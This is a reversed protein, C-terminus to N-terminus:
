ISLVNKEISVNQAITHTQVRVVIGTQRLLSRSSSGNGGVNLVIRLVVLQGVDLLGSHQIM